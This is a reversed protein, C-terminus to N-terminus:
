ESIEIGFELVFVLVNERYKEGLCEREMKDKVFM